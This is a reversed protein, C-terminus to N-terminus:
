RLSEAISCSINKELRTDIYTDGKIVDGILAGGGEGRVIHYIKYWVPTGFQRKHESM